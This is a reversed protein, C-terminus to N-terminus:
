VVTLGVSLFLSFTEKQIIIPRYFRRLFISSMCTGRALKASRAFDLVFLFISVLVIALWVGIIDNEIQVSSIVSIEEM